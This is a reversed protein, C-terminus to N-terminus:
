TTDTAELLLRTLSDALWAEYRDPSWRRTRVLLEHLEPSALGWYIDTAEKLTTRLTGRRAILKVFATQGAHRRNQDAELLSEIEPDSAAASRLARHAPAARELISRSLHALRNVLERQDAIGSLQQVEPRDLVPVPEHDGAVAVDLFHELITRKNKFHAYVSEVSVDAADAIAEMTTRQYGAEAFLRGAEDVIRRRTDDAHRRRTRADYSRKVARAM